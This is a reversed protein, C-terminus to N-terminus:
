IKLISHARYFRVHKEHIIFLAILNTSFKFNKVIRMQFHVKKRLKLFEAIGSVVLPFLLARDSYGRVLGTVNVQLYIQRTMCFICRIVRMKGSPLLSYHVTYNNIISSSVFPWGSTWSCEFLNSPQQLIITRTTSQYVRHLYAYRTRRNMSNYAFTM